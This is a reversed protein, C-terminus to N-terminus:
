FALQANKNTFTLNSIYLYIIYYEVIACLNYDHPSSFSAVGYNRYTNTIQTIQM